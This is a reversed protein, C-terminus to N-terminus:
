GRRHFHPRAPGPLQGERGGRSTERAGKYRRGCRVVDPRRLVGPLSVLGTRQRVWTLTSMRPGEVQTQALLEEQYAFVERVKQGPIDAATIVDVVGPLRLAESVDMSRRSLQASGPNWVRRCPCQCSKSSKLTREPAPSWPWSSSGTQRRYTTM